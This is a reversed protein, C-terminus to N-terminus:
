VILVIHDCYFLDTLSVFKHSLKFYIAFLGHLQYFINADLTSNISQFGSDICAGAKNRLEELIMLSWYVLWTGTNAM